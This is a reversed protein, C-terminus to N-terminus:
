ALQIIEAFVGAATVEAGAGPGKVVLPRERYRQTTFVVMNDSGSLAAFPSNNPVAQLGVSTRDKEIVALFRLVQGADTAQQHLQSFHDDHDALAVFFADVTPAIQCAQPLPNQISIDSLELPAGTERALILVKRAVDTGSLDDRPDPETYGLTKAQRVIESFAVSGDFRNFIFSLSGSLVAEIRLLEDGSQLLNQLTGIIPLGAGVNTEYRFKGFRKSISQYRQYQALKGSNAIKNPTVVAISNALITEYFHTPSANATCDVFISNPLNLDIMNQVMTALQTPEGQESLEHQWTTLDIGDPQHLCKRSNALSIVKIELAQKDLLYTRHAQIQELLTKGILGVGVMFLHLTHTDSLFFAEHLANLSKVEHQKGVVVSINLESSGQAIARINVGNRALAAFMRGSVGVSNRMNAGIVAVVSLDTEIILPDILHQQMETTFEDNIATRAKDADNPLIVFSISHESSAQTILIINVRHRALASFLRGAIGMVGKMGSGQLSVLAIQSMSSIGKVPHQTDTSSSSILTGSQHPAFSNLIRLPIQRDLAPQITPPHIVKAGFYSMEFAEEYTMDPLTFAKKVKRPDATMVGNVDTWIQIEDTDLAAGVIAASYDSGGRGLTTTVGKPNAAVFGGMVYIRAPTAAITKLLRQNTTAFDVKANSYDSNTVILQRPDLLQVDPLHQSLYHSIIYSSMLEGYSVVMDMTRDSLEGILAVGQLLKELRDTREQLVSIHPAKADASFLRKILDRHREYIINLETKYPLDGAEALRATHILHDTLGGLASVVVVLRPSHQLQQSVIHRLETIREANAVSTGGFKLIKM